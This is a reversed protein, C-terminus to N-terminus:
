NIIIFKSINISNSNILKFYYIGSTLDGTYITFDSSTEKKEKVVRGNIDLIIYTLQTNSTTKVYLINQAPNPYINAKLNLVESISSTFDMCPYNASKWMENLSDVM